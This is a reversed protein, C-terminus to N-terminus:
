LEGQYAFPIDASCYQVTSTRSERATESDDPNVPVFVSLPKHLLIDFIEESEQITSSIENHARISAVANYGSGAM